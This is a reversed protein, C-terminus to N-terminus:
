ISLLFKITNVGDAYDWLKPQQSQGFALAQDNLNPGASSVLCQIQDAQADLITKLDAANSYEEFYLVALPSALREDKKLLLFGNDLHEDQNVLYISKNYDYNNIYKHHDAIDKFVEIAAFFKGFDYNEPVYLKSVNRCGLGFYDFIDNGLARLEETNEHGTLIAVSNRNRRIIHPVNKFYYDFYRSTNNSGTAIVADFGSLRETYAIQHAFAPELTILEKLIYPILKQDQSSLKILAKHGTALVCLIDHFGVMPINGALVLGITKPEQDPQKDNPGIEISFWKELDERNLMRGIATVARLTNEPTFWANHLKATEILSLLQGQPVSLIEGLKVLADLRKKSELNTTKLSLDRM